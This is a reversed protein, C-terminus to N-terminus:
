VVGAYVSLPPLGAFSEMKGKPYVPKAASIGAPPKLELETSLGSGTAPNAQIHYPEEVSVQVAGWTKEGQPVQRFQAQAKVPFLPSLFGQAGAATAVLAMGLLLLWSCRRRMVQHVRKAGPRDGQISM